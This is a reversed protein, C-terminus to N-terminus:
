YGENYPVFLDRDEVKLYFESLKIRFYKLLVSLSCVSPNTKCAEIRGIHVGTEMYVDHQSVGMEERLEKLVLAISLLLNEDRIQTM